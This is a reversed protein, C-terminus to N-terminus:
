IVDAFGREQRRFLFASALLVITASAASVGVLPLVNLTRSGIIVWRFGEVLGVVPNIAYLPQLAKPVISTSYAVPSAFLWMQLLFPVAHRVDRFRVNIASLFLVPGLAVVFALVLLAPFALLRLSPLVGFFIAVVVLVGSAILIDVLVAAVAALPVCGRPFWIRSLMSSSAVLSLSGTGVATAIFTWAVLGSLSFVPYPTGDSSLGALRGFVLTFVIMTAVPQLVAWAAGLLTQRYKVKLDRLALFGALGRYEWLERLGLAVWGSSPRLHVVRVPPLAVNALGHQQGVTM